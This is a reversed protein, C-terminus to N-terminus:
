KSHKAWFEQLRKHFFTAVMPSLREKKEFCEWQHQRSLGSFCPVNKNIGGWVGSVSLKPFSVVVVKARFWSEFSTSNRWVCFCQRQRFIVFKGRLPHVKSTAPFCVSEGCPGKYFIVQRSPLGFLNGVLKVLIIVKVSVKQENLGRSCTFITGAPLWITQM